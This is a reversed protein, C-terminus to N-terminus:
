IDIEQNQSVKGNGTLLAHVKHSQRCSEDVSLGMRELHKESAIHDGNGADVLLRVCVSPVDDDVKALAALARFSEM